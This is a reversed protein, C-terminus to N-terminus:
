NEPIGILLFGEFDRVRRKCEGHYDITFGQENNTSHILMCNGDRSNKCVKQWLKDRVM